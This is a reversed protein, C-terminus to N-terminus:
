RILISAALLGLGALFVVGVLCLWNTIKELDNAFDRFDDNM